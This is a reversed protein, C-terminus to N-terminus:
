EQGAALVYSLVLLAQCWLRERNFWIPEALSVHLEKSGQRGVPIAEFIPYEDGEWENAALRCDCSTIDEAIVEILTASFQWRTKDNIFPNIQSPVSIAEHHI